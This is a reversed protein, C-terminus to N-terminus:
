GEGDADQGRSTPALGRQSPAACFAIFRDTLPHVREAEVSSVRASLVGKGTLVARYVHRLRNIDDSSHGARKLGVRNLSFLKAHDGHAMCFPPIDQSVMAGAAVIALDGVRVFQHIGAMGGVTVGSGVTVHGALACANAFVCHDGIHGDHGVHSCAMFLNSNGIVTQMGGHETGISITVYERFSNGEGIILESDEGRYKLDQPKCGVSAFPYILNKEGITTRGDLVAHAGVSSGNGLKVKSGIVAFPGITVDAGLEAGPSIIASPHIDPM